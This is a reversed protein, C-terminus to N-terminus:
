YQIEVHMLTSIINTTRGNGAGCGILAWRLAVSNGSFGEVTLKVKVAVVPNFFARTEISTSDSNGTFESTGNENLIEINNNNTSMYELRYSTVWSQVSESGRTQIKRVFKAASFEAQFAVFCVIFIM